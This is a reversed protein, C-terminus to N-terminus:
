DPLVPLLVHSPYRSGHHVSNEAIVGVTEDFNNGGTNLNREYMPVSSSSVDLRIRHGKPFRIASVMNTLTVKYVQGSQMLVKKDFGERYRMRFADDGLNIAKGDPYVDVLKVIFDTDKASSSVYLVVEIPGAITVPKDLRPTSYVLVDRRAEAPRQDIASTLGCCGGGGLSPAPVTPDYLYSDKQNGGPASSALGGKDSSLQAGAGGTLYYKTFRTEDLPWRDGTVWGKNMVYLQVKPMDTVRNQEGAVWHGFWSLFLNEFGRDVGGYRADGVEVDDFKLDHLDGGLRCHPGAGLILYQNATGMDQLYKFFRTTEGVAIDYWTNTHLAPM